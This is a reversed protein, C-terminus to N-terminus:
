IWALLFIKEYYLREVVLLFLHEVVVSVAYVMTLQWCVDVEHAVWQVLYPEPQQNPELICTEIM